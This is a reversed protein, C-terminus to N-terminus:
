HVDLIVHSQKPVSKDTTRKLAIPLVTNEDIIATDIQDQTIITTYRRGFAVLNTIGLTALYIQFQDRLMHHCLVTGRLSAGALNAGGFNAGIVWAQDLQAGRLDAKRLDAGYLTANQLNAQRLDAGYFSALSCDANELESHNLNAEDFKSFLLFARTGRVSSLNRGSFDTMPHDNLEFRRGSKANTEVWAQHSALQKQLGKDPSTAPPSGSTGRHMTLVSSGAIAMNLGIAPMHVVGELESHKRAFALWKALTRPSVGLWSATVAPPFSYEAELGAAFLAVDIRIDPPVRIESLAGWTRKKARDVGQM